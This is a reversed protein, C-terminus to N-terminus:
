TFAAIDDPVGAAAGGAAPVVPAEFGAAGPEAAEDPVLPAGAGLGALFSGFVALGIGDIARAPTVRSVNAAVNRARRCRQHRPLAGPQRIAFRM